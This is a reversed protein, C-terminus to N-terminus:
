ENEDDIKHPIITFRYGIAEGIDALTILTMNRLGSMVHSVHGQSIDLIEALDKYSLGENALLTRIRDTTDEILIKREGTIEKKRLPPAPNMKKRAEVAKKRTEPNTFNHPQTM